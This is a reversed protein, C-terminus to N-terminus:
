RFRLRRESIQFVLLGALMTVFGWTSERPNLKLIHAIMWGNVL